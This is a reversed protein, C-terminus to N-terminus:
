SEIDPLAPLFVDVAFPVAADIGLSSKVKRLEVGWEDRNAPGITDNLFYLNVLWAPRHLVERILYLHAFRNASQYLPGTWDANTRAGCWQKAAALSREILDFSHPTAQCGFGYIEPIHSKAELLIVSPPLKAESDSIVGLADWCPGGRPWFKRLEVASDSLGVARLFDEDRYEVYEDRALPSVWHIGAGLDMLVSPLAQMVASTLTVEHQNVYNQLQRRSGRQARGLTGARDTVSNSLPPTVAIEARPDKRISPLDRSNFELTRLHWYSEDTTAHPQVERRSGGLVTDSCVLSWETDGVIKVNGSSYDRLRTSGAPNHVFLLFSNKNFNPLYVMWYEYGFAM